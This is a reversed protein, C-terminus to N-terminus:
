GVDAPVGLWYFHQYRAVNMYTIMGVEVKHTLIAKAMICATLKQDFIKFVVILICSLILGLGLCNQAKKLQVQKTFCSFKCLSYDLQM